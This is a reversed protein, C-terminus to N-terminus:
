RFVRDTLRRLYFNYHPQSTHRGGGLFGFMKFAAGFLFLLGLVDGCARNRGAGVMGERALLSSTCWRGWSILDEVKQCGWSPRGEKGDSDSSWM